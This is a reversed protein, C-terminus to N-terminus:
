TFSLGDDLAELLEEWSPTSGEGKLWQMFIDWCALNADGECKEDILATVSPDFDLLDALERWKSGVTPIVKGNIDAVAQLNSCIRISLILQFHHDSLVQCALAGNKVSSM